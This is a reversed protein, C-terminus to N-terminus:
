SSAEPTGHSRALKSAYASELWHHLVLEHARASSRLVRNAHMHLLSSLLEEIPVALADGADLRRLTAVSERIAESRRALLPACAALVGLEDPTGDLMAEITAREDRWRAMLRRRAPSDIRFEAGFARALAGMHARRQELTRGFDALLRDMGLLAFRWRADLQGPAMALFDLVALSDHRFITECAVVGEPGGYRLTERAYPEIQVRHVAGDAVLPALADRLAPFAEALLRQPEGHLRVRVHWAPDAYRVFFGNGATGDGLLRAFVPRVCEGLVRDISAPGGYCKVSLWESGPVFVTGPALRAADANARMPRRPTAPPTRRVVPIVIENVLAGEPSAVVDTREGPLLEELTFPDRGSLESLFADVSLPQDLDIPLVNDAHALGVFRPLRREARWRQVERFAAHGAHARLRKAEDASANWQQRALVLRGMRVRPLRPQMELPGWHWASGGTNGETQLAVLFRYVGLSRHATHHATAMRPRVDRGLSRSRLAVRGAELRVTLDSVALVRDAPAGSDGLWALERERLLPRAIVNGVRGEPLHVIEIYEVDPELAQEARLHGRVREALEPDGHGFRGLMRAGSPGAASDLVARPAAPDDPAAALLTAMVHFAAPLPTAGPERFRELERPEFRLEEDGRAVAGALRWQLFQMRDGFDPRNEAPAVPLALGALLPSPDASPGQSAGFGIGTEEDLAEVLPVERDGYRAEFAERFEAMSDARGHMFLGAVLEAARVMEDVLSADLELEPAPRHLDVQVLRSRDIPALSELSAALREYAEPAAGPGAADLARLADRAAALTAVARHEPVHHALRAILEDLADPGTVVPGLAAVLLQADALEHVFALADEHTVGDGELARAIAPAGAGGAAAALAAEVADNADVRVLFYTRQGDVTRAEAYRLSGGARYLSSNPVFPVRERVLPDAALRAVVESLFDMDLRSHRRAHAREPLRLCTTRGVRGLSSSAFTGFPTARAAMRSAYKVLGAEVGPEEDPAARWADLREHLAPSALWLAERFERTAALAALRERARARDRRWAAEDDPRLACALGDGWGELM